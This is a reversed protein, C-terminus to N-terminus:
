DEDLIAAWDRAGHLIRVVEVHDTVRYFILYSGVPRRRTGVQQDVAFRLPFESLGRIAALIRHVVAEAAAPNDAAIATEIEVLDLRAGQAVRVIL